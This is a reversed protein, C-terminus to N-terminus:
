HTGTPPSASATGCSCALPCPTSEYAGQGGHGPGHQAGLPWVPLRTVTVSRSSQRKQLDSGTVWTAARGQSQEEAPLFVVRDAVLTVLLGWFIFWASPVM